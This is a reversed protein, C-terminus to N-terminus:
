KKRKIFRILGSIAFAWLIADGFLAILLFKIPLLYALPFKFFLFIVKFIEGATRNTMTGEEFGFTVALSIFCLLISIIITILHLKTKTM